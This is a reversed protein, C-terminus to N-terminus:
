EEDKLKMSAKDKVNELLPAVGSRTKLRRRVHACFAKPSIKSKRAIDKEFRRKYQRMMTKVHKPIISPHQSFMKVRKPM